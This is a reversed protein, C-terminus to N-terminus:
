GLVADPQQSPSANAFAPLSEAYNFVKCICPYENPNVDVFFRKASYVCPILFIDAITPQSTGLCFLSEDDNIASQAWLTSVLSEIAHLGLRM